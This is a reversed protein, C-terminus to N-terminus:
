NNGLYINKLKILGGAVVEDLNKIHDSCFKQIDEESGDDLIKNFDELASEPMNNLIEANVINEAREILDQKLQEIVEPELGTVGKEELLKSVFAEITFQM